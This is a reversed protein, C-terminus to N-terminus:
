AQFYTTIIKQLGSLMQEIWQQISLIIPRPLDHTLNMLKSQFYIWRENMTDVLGPVWQSLESFKLLIFVYLLYCLILVVISFISFLVIVIFRRSKNWQKEYKRILPNFCLATM